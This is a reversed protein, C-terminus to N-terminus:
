GSIGELKKTHSNQDSLKKDLQEVKYSLNNIIDRQLLNMKMLLSCIAVSGMGEPQNEDSNIELALNALKGVIEKEIDQNISTKNQILVKDEILKKFQLGLMLSREKQENSKIIEEDALKDFSEKNSPEPPLIESSENNIKLGKKQKAIPKDQFAM